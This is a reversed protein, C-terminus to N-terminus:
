RGLYSGLVVLALPRSWHMADPSALFDNWVRRVEGGALFPQRELTGIAAECQDRVSTRMWSGIPMMFGTKPRETVRSPLVDACAARLLAKPLSRAPQKVHGPLSSVYTVLPLDLFPVRLELSQRMSNGDSDRLLTDGMYHIMELQSVTNFADGDAGIRFGREEARDLYDGGLGVHGASLGLATMRRDSLTRRLALAVGAVSGDTAVLDALKEVAGTRGDLLGLRRIAGSRLERPLLGLGRVIRSWRPAQTFAPYGGFLEDAGLGSLGVTVGERAVWRSVIRTNFGDISPSDLTAIWERWVDSLAAPDVSITLHRLGLASSTAAAVGSEDEAEFTGYGVTFTTLNAACERACATIVTSDIGASLLVGVPVDAVLHRRVADRILRGTEAAATEADPPPVPDPFSWYRRPADHAPRGAGVGADIWQYAGAPFSRVHEFVTRPSQVAGYALMGAIGAVDHDLPVIGSDRVAGIESAFVFRDPLAAVYLPKIGLPDRALLLRRESADYFALAFMGQLKTLAREHWRSLAHLLVETDGSGRFTEGADALEAKLERYNYIEGNFVLWDGTSPNKMPQGGAFSLDIIALRRFGLGLVPGDGEAAFPLEVFGDDDPGRHVMARMMRRVAPEVQRPDTGIVGCIGCM